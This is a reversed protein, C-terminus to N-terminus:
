RKAVLHFVHWHKPTGDATKGDQNEEDLEIIELPRVLVPLEDRSSFALGSGPVNWQDQPGFFTATLIGGPRVAQVLRQVAPEFQAPPVFPLSFQASVLDYTEPVFNEISTPIYSLWRQRPMKRMMEAAAPSSDVATVRWGELLLHRTDRGGGAGLDLADGPRAFRAACAVL